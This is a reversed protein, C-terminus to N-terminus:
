RETTNIHNGIAEELGKWPLLACKIRIPFEKVGQLSLLSGLKNCDSTSITNESLFDRFLQSISFLEGLSKNKISETLMSGSAINISCGQSQLGVTEVRDNASLQLQIRVEDGCFPNIAEGSIDPKNLTKTNRPRRCHDLLAEQYLKNLKDLEM